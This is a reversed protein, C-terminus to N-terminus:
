IGLEKAKARQYALLFGYERNYTDEPNCKSTGRYYKKDCKILVITENNHYIVEINEKTLSKTSKSFGEFKSIVYNYNNEAYHNIEGYVMGGYKKDYNYVTKNKYNNWKNKHVLNKETCWKLGQEHCYKLFENALEETECNVVLKNNLFDDWHKSVDFKEM